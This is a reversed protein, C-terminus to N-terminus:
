RLGVDAEDSRAKDSNSRGVSNTNMLARLLRKESPLLQDWDLGVLWEDAEESRKVGSLAIGRVAMFVPLNEVESGMGSETLTLVDEFRSQLLYAFALVSRIQQNEPLQADLEEVEAALSVASIHGALCSLYSYRAQVVPNGVEALRLTAFVEGLESEKKSAVLHDILPELHSALPLPGTRQRLAELWVRRSFDELARQEARLALRILAGDELDSMAASMAAKEAMARGSVNKMLHCVYARDCLMEPDNAAVPNALLMSWAELRGEREAALCALAFAAPDDDVRLTKVLARAEAFRELQLCWRLTALPASERHASLAHVFVREAQDTALAMELRAARLADAPEKLHAGRVHGLLVAAADAPFVQQPLEDLIPLLRGIEGPQQNAADTLDSWFAHFSDNLGDVALLRLRRLRLEIPLPEKQCAILENAEDHMKELLMRDVLAAVYAPASKEDDPLSEWTSIVLWASSSRCVVQWAFLRDRSSAGPAALLRCALGGRASDGLADSSRVLVPLAREITQEHELALLALRRADIPRGSELAEVAGTLSKESHWQRYAGAVSPGTALAAVGSIAFYRWFPHLDLWRYRWPVTWKMLAKGFNGTSEKRSNKSAMSKEIKLEL